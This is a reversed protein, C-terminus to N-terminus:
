KGTGKGADPASAGSGQRPKFPSTSVSFTSLPREQGRKDVIVYQLSWFSSPKQIIETGQMASQMDFRKMRLYSAPTASAFQEAAEAAAKWQMHPHHLLNQLVAGQLLKRQAETLQRGTLKAGSRLQATQEPTLAYYVARIVPVGDALSAMDFADVITRSDEATQQVELPILQPYEEYRKFRKTMLVVHHKNLTWAYDYAEAVKDLADKLTGKFEVDAKNDRPEDNVLIGRESQRAVQAIVEAMKAQKLSLSVTRTTFEAPLSPSPVASPKEVVAAPPEAANNAAPPATSGVRPLLVLSGIYLSVLLHKALRRRGNGLPPVFVAHRM